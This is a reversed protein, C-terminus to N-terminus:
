NSWKISDLAKAIKDRQIIITNLLRIKLKGAEFDKKQWITLDYIGNYTKDIQDILAQLMMSVFYYSNQLRRADHVGSSDFESKMNKLFINSMEDCYQLICKEDFASKFLNRKSTSAEETRSINIM